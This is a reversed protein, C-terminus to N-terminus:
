SKNLRIKDKFRGYFDATDILKDPHVPCPMFADTTGDHLESLLKLLRHIDIM